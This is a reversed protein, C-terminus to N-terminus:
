CRSETGVTTRPLSPATEAGQGPYKILEEKFDFSDIAGGTFSARGSFAFCAARRSNWEPSVKEPPSVRIFNGAYAAAVADFRARMFVQVYQIRPVVEPSM